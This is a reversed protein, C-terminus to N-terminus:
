FLEGGFELTASSRQMHLRDCPAACWAAPELTDLM